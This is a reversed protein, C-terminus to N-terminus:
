NVDVTLREEEVIGTLTECALRFTTDQFLTPSSASGQRGEREFGPHRDSTLICRITDDTDWSLTVSGGRSVSNATTSLTLTPQAFRVTCSATTNDTDPLENICAVSYTTDETLTARTGGIVAGGTDFGTGQTTRAGDRCAWLVIIEENAAAANPACVLTPTAGNLAGSATSSRNGTGAIGASTRINASQAARSSQQQQQQQQAQLSAYEQQPPQEPTQNQRIGLFVAVPEFINAVNREPTAARAMGAHEYLAVGLVIVVLLALARKQTSSAYM